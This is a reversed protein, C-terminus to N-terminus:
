NGIVKYVEVDGSMNIKWKICMHIHMYLCIACEGHM